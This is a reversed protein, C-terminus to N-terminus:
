FIPNNEEDFLFDSNYHKVLENSLQSIIKEQNQIDFDLELIKSLEVLLNAVLCGVPQGAINLLRMEDLVESLDGLLKYQEDSKIERLNNNSKIKELIEKRNM